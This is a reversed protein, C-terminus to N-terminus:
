IFLMDSEKLNKVSEKRYLLENVDRYFNEINRIKIRDILSYNAPYLVIQITDGITIILPIAPLDIGKTNPFYSKKISQMNYKNYLKVIHEKETASLSLMLTDSKHLYSRVFIGKKHNYYDISDNFTFDVETVQEQKSCGLLMFLMLFRVTTM